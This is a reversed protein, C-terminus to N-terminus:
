SHAKNWNYFFYYCQGWLRVNNVSTMGEWNTEKSSPEENKLPFRYM